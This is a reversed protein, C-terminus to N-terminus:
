RGFLTSYTSILSEDAIRVIGSRQAKNQCFRHVIDYGIRFYKDFM